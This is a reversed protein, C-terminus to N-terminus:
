SNRAIVGTTMHVCRRSPLVNNDRPSGSSERKGRARWAVVDARIGSMGLGAHRFATWRQRGTVM